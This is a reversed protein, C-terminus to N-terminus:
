LLSHLWLEGLLASSQVILAIDVSETTGIVRCNYTGTDSLIPNSITLVLVRSSQTTLGGFQGRGAGDMFTIQRRDQGSTIMEGDRFWQLQDDPRIYASMDCSLEVFSANDM